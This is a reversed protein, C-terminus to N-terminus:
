RSSAEGSAGTDCAGELGEVTFAEIEGPRTHLAKNKGPDLDTQHPENEGFGMADPVTNSAGGGREVPVGRVGSVDTVIERDVDSDATGSIVAEDAGFVGAFRTQPKPVSQNSSKEASPTNTEFEVHARVSGRVLVRCNDLEASTDTEVGVVKNERM